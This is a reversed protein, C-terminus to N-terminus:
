GQWRTVLPAVDPRERELPPERPTGILMFAAVREPGALGLVANAEADYAYWDTIWNAGYGMALTAHLLTTCVAGASLRQEWEPIPAELKPASIV